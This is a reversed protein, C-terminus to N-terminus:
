RGKLINIVQPLEDMSTKRLFSGIFPIIRPDNKIKFAPGDM